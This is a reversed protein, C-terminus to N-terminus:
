GLTIDGHGGGVLALDLATLEEMPAVKAAAAAAEVAKLEVSKIEM